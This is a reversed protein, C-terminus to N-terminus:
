LQEFRNVSSSYDIASLTSIITLLFPESRTRPSITNFSASPFSNPKPPLVMILKHRQPAEFLLGNQSPECALHPKSDITIARSKGAGAGFGVAYASAIELLLKGPLSRSAKNDCAKELSFTGELWGFLM